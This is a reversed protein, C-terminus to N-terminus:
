RWPKDSPCLHTQSLFINLINEKVPTTVTTKLIKQQPPTKHGLISNTRPRRFIWILTSKPLASVLGTTGDQALARIYRREVGGSAQM